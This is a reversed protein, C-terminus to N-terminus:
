EGEREISHTAEVQLTLKNIVKNFDAKRLPKPRFLFLTMFFCNSFGDEIAEQETIERVTKTEKSIIKATQIFEREKSRPKYVEQVVEGISWDFGRDSDKRPFRFTTHIPNKLKDWKKTFGMVRM